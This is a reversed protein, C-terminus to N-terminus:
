PKLNPYNPNYDELNVEGDEPKIGKIGFTDLLLNLIMFIGMMITIGIIGWLMHRRGNSRKEENEQNSIFEFIGYVFYVVALAFLLLILPNIIHKNLNLVFSDVGAYAVNIFLSNGM